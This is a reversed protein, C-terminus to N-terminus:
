APLVQADVLIRLPAHEAKQISVEGGKPVDVITGDVCIKRWREDEEEILIRVEEVEEYGVEEGDDWRLGVHKGGDYARRMVDLTREGGVPGFHVLRLKGDLPAGAPSVAFTRELNSVLTALVYAHAGRPLPTLTSSSSGPRRVSVRAAYAHSESLLEQAVMGFRKDGHARYAPTDSEYVISAHFGYSAVVAGSLRSVEAEHKSLHQEAPQRAAEDDVPDPTFRVTHSGPPFSVHFSPLNVPRGLILTRLAVVLPSPGPDSYLPMHMSHFLANGTGLPLLAILPRGEGPSPEDLENLLDAVGGDGSLMVVTASRGDESKLSRAFQGVSEASETVLVNGDPSGDDGGEALAAQGGRVTRLLPRLVHNWVTLAQGTGSKVSVVVHLQNTENDLLHSPIGRLVRPQLAEPISDAETVQLSTSRGSDAPPEEVSCIVFKPRSNTSTQPTQELIVVVAHENLKDATGQSGM